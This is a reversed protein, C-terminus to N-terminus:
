QRTKDLQQADRDIYAQVFAIARDRAELFIRDVEAEASVGGKNLQQPSFEGVVTFFERDKEVASSKVDFVRNIYTM